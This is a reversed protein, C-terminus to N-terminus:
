DRELHLKFEGGEKSCSSPPAVLVFGLPKVPLDTPHAEEMHSSNWGHYLEVLQVQKLTNAWM